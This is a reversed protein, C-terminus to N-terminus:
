AKKKMFFVEFQHFDVDKFSRYYVWEDETPKETEVGGHEIVKQMIKDVEDKSKVELSIFSSHVDQQALKLIPHFSLFRSKELVFLYSHNNFEVCFGQDYSYDEKITLGINTFFSKSTTLNETFLHTYTKIEM